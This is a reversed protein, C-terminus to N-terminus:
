SLLSISAMTEVRMFEEHDIVHLKQIAGLERWINYFNSEPASGVLWDPCGDITYGKRQWSTCLGGPLNHMEFIRTSYGNM